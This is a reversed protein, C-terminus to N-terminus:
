STVTPTRRSALASSRRVWFTILTPAGATDPTSIATTPGPQAIPYSLAVNKAAAHISDRTRTGNVGILFLSRNPANRSPHLSKKERRQNHIM